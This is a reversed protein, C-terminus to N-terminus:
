ATYFAGKIWNIEAEAPQKDVKTIFVTDFRMPYSQYRPFRTLFFQATRTIKQQKRTTVSAAAGGFKKSSRYKVEIFCLTTEDLMILDIEGFRSSFNHKVLSLGQQQLYSRALNEQLQGFLRM